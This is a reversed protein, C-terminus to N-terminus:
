TRAYQHHLGGLVPMSVITGIAQVPRHIPCDKSLSRHTRARTYYAAYSRLIWRLHTAGVVVVHDLCDRRISGILRKAYPNQWPSTPAIPRDRIGMVQLRRRFVACYVRDRDRILDTPADYWPFVDTVQRAMWGATPTVTMGTWVLLRRALHVIVLGYLLRFGITPVMFLDIAAIGDAHNRM